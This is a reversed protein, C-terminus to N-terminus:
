FLPGSRALLWVRPKEPVLLGPDLGPTHQGLLFARRKGLGLKLREEEWREVNGDGVSHM